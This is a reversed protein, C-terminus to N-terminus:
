LNSSNHSCVLQCVSATEVAIVRLGHTFKAAEGVWQKIMGVSPVLVLVPGKDPNEEFLEVIIKLAQVLKVILKKTIKLLNYHPTHMSTKGLGMEDALIAGGREPDQLVEKMFKVGEVQYDRL